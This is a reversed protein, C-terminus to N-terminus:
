NHGSQVDQAPHPPPPLMANEDFVKKQSDNLQAYFTRIANSRQAHKSERAKHWAELADLRQLTNRKEMDALEPLESKEEPKMEVQFTKWASEQTASLQLLQHLREQHQAFMQVNKQQWKVKDYPPKNCGHDYEALALGSILMLASALTLHKLKM